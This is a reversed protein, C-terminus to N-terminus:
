HDGEQSFTKTTSEHKGDGSKHEGEASACKVESTDEPKDTAQRAAAEASDEAASETGNTKEAADESQDGAKEATDETQDAAVCTSAAAEAAEEAQQAALKAALEAQEAAIKAALEAAEIADTTQEDTLTNPAPDQFSVLTAGTAANVITGVMSRSTTTPTGHAFASTIALIAAVAAAASALGIKFLTKRPM